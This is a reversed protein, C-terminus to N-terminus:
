LIGGNIGIRLWIFGTRVKRGQKKLIWKLVVRGDVDLDEEQEIEKLTEHWFKTHVERGSVSGSRVARIRM